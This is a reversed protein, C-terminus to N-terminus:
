EFTATSVNVNPRWHGIPPEPPIPAGERLLDCSERPIDEPLHPAIIDATERARTMTSNVMKTYPLKLDKLRLGTFEAQERGVPLLLLKLLLLLSM